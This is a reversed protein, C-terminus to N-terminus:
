SLLTNLTETLETDLQQNKTIIADIRLSEDVKLSPNSTLLVARIHRNSADSYRLAAIMAIGNLDKGEKSVILLDHKVHLLEGLAKYGSDIITIDSTIPKLLSLYVESALRSSEVLMIHPQKKPQKLQSLQQVIGSIDDGGTSYSAYCQHLLDVLALAHNLEDEKMAQPHSTLWDELTHCVQTIAPMAYTGGSGKLSHVRRYLEDFTDLYYTKDRLQLVLDELANIREPLENLFGQRLLALAQRAQENLPSSPQSM